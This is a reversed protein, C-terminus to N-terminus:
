HFNKKLAPNLILIKLLTKRLISYNMKQIEVILDLSTIYFDPIYFHDAGNYEYHFTPGPSMIDTPNTWELQNDLFELFDREYSGTYDFNNIRDSWKYVGSIKRGMLM